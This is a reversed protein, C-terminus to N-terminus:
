VIVKAYKVKPDQEDVIKVGIIQKLQLEPPTGRIYFVPIEYAFAVSIERFVGKGIHEEFESCILLNCKKVAKL